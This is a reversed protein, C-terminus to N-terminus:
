IVGGMKLVFNEFIKAYFRIVVFGKNKRFKIKKDSIFIASISFIKFM